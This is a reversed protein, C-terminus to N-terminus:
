SRLHAPLFWPSHSHQEALQHLPLMSGQLHDTKPKPGDSEKRAYKGSECEAHPHIGLRISIAAIAVLLHVVEEAARQDAGREDWGCSFFGNTPAALTYLVALKLEIRKDIDVIVIIRGIIIRRIIVVAGIIIVLPIVVVYIVVRHIVIGGIVIVRGIVVRRIIVVAGIIIYIVVRHIIIRGIIVIVRPIIVRVVVGIVIVARIVVYIIVGRIVIVRGIVVRRVIVGGIIVIVRPIIVRGIVIILAIIGGIIVIVRPIIVRVVGGIVVGRIVIIL